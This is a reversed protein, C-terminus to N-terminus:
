ADAEASPQDAEEAPQSTFDLVAEESPEAQEVAPLTSRLLTQRRSIRVM